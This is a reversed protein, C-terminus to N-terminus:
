LHLKWWCFETIILPKFEKLFHPFHSLMINRCMNEYCCRACEPVSFFNVLYYFLMELRENFIKLTM